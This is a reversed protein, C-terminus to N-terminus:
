GPVRDVTRPDLRWRLRAGRPLAALTARRIAAADEVAQLAHAGSPSDPSFTARLAREALRALAARQEAELRPGVRRAFRGASEAPRPAAGALALADTAQRWAGALRDVPAPGRVQARRRRDVFLADLGLGACLVVIVLGILPLVTGGSGRLTTAGRGPGSRHPGSLVNHGGVDSPLGRIGAGPHAGHPLSDHPGTTGGARGPAPGPRAPRIGVVAHSPAAPDTEGPAVGAYSTETPAGRGPTPEFAVWGYPQLLVEPWAHADLARVVWRHGSEQEGYTFGIAIRTPLGLERAMVAFAGAFQQCFGERTQFLFRVLDQTTSSPPVDLNYTFKTRFFRELDLAKAFPTSAGATVKRALAGVRTPIGSPLQLNARSLADHPVTAGALLQPSLDPIASVVAYTAGPHVGGSATVSATAPHWRVRSVGSVALPQEGVPLWPESLHSIQFRETTRVSAPPAGPLTATGSGPAASATWVVGDFHDLTTLQWYTPTQTQVTFAVTSSPTLKESKLSVLPSVAFSGGGHGSSGTGLGTVDGGHWHVLAGGGAGPLLPATLTAIGTGLLALASGVALWASWARPRRGRPGLRRPLERSLTLALVALLWAAAELSGGGATGLGGTLVLVELSPVVALVISGARFAAWDAFVGVLGMGLTTLLLFGTTVPAPAALERLERPVLALAHHAASVTAPVVLGYTTSAGLAVWATVLCIAVLSGGVALVGPVGRRRALWGLGHATVLVVLTPILFGNSDFLRVFGLTVVLNVVLLAVSPGLPASPAATSPAPAGPPPGVGARRAFREAASTGARERGPAAPAAVSM